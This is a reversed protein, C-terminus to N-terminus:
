PKRRRLARRADRWSLLELALHNEKKAAQGESGESVDARVQAGSRGGGFRREHLLVSETRAADLARAARVATRTGAVVMGTRHLQPTRGRARRAERNGGAGARYQRGGRRRGRRSDQTRRAYLAM